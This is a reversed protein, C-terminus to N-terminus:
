EWGERLERVYKDADVPKWLDRYKAALAALPDRASPRSWEREYWDILAHYKAPVEDLSPTVKGTRQADHPDGPRFLRRRPGSTAFLMRYRGTSRPINAVCHQSIHANLSSPQADLPLNEQRIRAIIQGPLFDPAEPHERHLLATGIWVADAV